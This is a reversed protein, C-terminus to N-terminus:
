VEDDILEISRNDVSEQRIIEIEETHASSMMSLAELALEALEAQYDVPAISAEPDFRLAEEELSLEEQQIVPMELEKFVFTDEEETYLYNPLTTKMFEELQSVSNAKPIEFLDAFTNKEIESSAIVRVEIGKEYCNSLIEKQFRRNLSALNPDTFFCSSYFLVFDKYNINPSDDSRYWHESFKCTNPDLFKERPMTLIMLPTGESSFMAGKMFFYNKNNINIKNACLAIELSYKINKITNSKTYVSGELFCPKYYYDLNINFAFNVYIPIYNNAAILTKYLRNRQFTHITRQTVIM